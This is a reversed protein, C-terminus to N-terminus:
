SAGQEDVVHDRYRDRNSTASIRNEHKKRDPPEVELDEDCHKRGNPRDREQDRAARELSQIIRAVM